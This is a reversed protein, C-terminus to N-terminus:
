IPVLILVMPLFLCWSVVPFKDSLVATMAIGIFLPLSLGCLFGWTRIKM